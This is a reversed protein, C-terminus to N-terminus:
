LVNRLVIIAAMGTLVTALLSRSFFAALLAPIAALLEDGRPAFHGDPVLLSQGLLAAMVAVPIYGLWRMCWAPLRLKRLVIFPLIRPLLTVLSSGLLVWFFTGSVIV